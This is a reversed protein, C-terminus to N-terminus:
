QASFSPPAPYIRRSSGGKIRAKYDSTKQVRLDPSGSFFSQRAGRMELLSLTFCIQRKAGVGCRRGEANFYFAIFRSPGFTPLLPFAQPANEENRRIKANIEKHTPAPSHWSPRMFM